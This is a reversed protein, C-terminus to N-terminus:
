FIASDTVVRKLTYYLFDTRENFICGNSHIKFPQMKKKAAIEAKNPSTILM